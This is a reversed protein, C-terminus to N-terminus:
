VERLSTQFSQSLTNTQKTLFFIFNWVKEMTLNNFIKKKKEIKNLDFEEEKERCLIAMQEAIVNFRGAAKKKNLVDLQSTEIFDEFTSKKMNIDPYYYKVGKHEFYDVYEGRDEQDGLFKNMVNIIAVVENEDCKNVEDISLKTLHSFVVRIAQYYNVNRKAEELEKEEKSLEEDIPILCGYENLKELIFVYDKLRMESWESPLEVKRKGVSIFIM